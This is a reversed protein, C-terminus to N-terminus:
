RRGCRVHREHRAGGSEQDGAAGPLLLAVGGLERELSMAAFGFLDGSAMRRGELTARGTSCPPSSTRRRLCPLSVRGRCGERRTRADRPRCVGQSEVGLWWGAPTEIDRNVNVPCEGEVAALTVSRIGAVASSSLRAPRRRRASRSLARQSQPYRDDALHGPLASTLCPFRTPRSWGLILCRECNAADEVVERLDALLAPAISTVELSLICARRGMGEVVFPVPLSKM